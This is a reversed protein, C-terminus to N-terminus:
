LDAAAASAMRRGPYSEALLATLERAAPLVAASASVAQSIVRRLPVGAVPRAILSGMALEKVVAARSLIAIGLGEEVAIKIAEIGRLEAAVRLSGPELGAARLEQEAVQRTGSGPERVILPELLLDEPSLEEVRALRHSAAAVVVLEDQLIPQTRIAANEVDGEVYGVDATGALLSRVVEATNEFRVRMFLGPHRRGLIAMPRPILYNGATLSAAVTLDGEVAGRAAAVARRAQEISALIADTREYLAAGEPTLAVRRHSREFLVGGLEAELAAIQQSVASQSMHLALAAHTFSQREAVEKFM